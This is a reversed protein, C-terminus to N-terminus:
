KLTQKSSQLSTASFGRCIQELVAVTKQLANHAMGCLTVLIYSMTKTVVQAVARAINIMALLHHLAQDLIYLVPVTPNTNGMM